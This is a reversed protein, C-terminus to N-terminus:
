EPLRPEGACAREAAALADRAEGQEYLLPALKAWAEASRPDLKTATTYSAIARELSTPALSSLWDRKAVDGLGIVPEPDGAVLAAAREFRGHALNTKEALFYAHALALQYRPDDSALATAEELETIALRREDITGTALRTQASRFLSEARQSRPSACRAMPAATAIAVALALLAKGLVPGRKM